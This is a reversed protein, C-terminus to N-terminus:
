APFALATVVEFANANVDAFVEIGIGNLVCLMVGTLGDMFLDVAVDSPVDASYSVTLAFKLVIVTTAVVLFEVNVLLDDDLKKFLVALDIIATVWVLEKVMVNLVSIVTVMALVIM